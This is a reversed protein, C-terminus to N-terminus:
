LFIGDGPNSRLARPEKEKMSCQTLIGDLYWSHFFWASWFLQCRLFVLAELNHEGACMCIIIEAAFIALPNKWAKEWGCLRKFGPWSERCRNWVFSNQYLRTAKHWKKCDEMLWYHVGWDLGIETWFVVGQRRLMLCLPHNEWEPGNVAKWKGCGTWKGCPWQGRHLRHFSGTQPQRSLGSLLLLIPPSSTWTSHLFHLGPARVSPLSRPVNGARQVKKLVSQNTDMKSLVVDHVQLGPLLSFTKWARTHNYEDDRGRWGLGTDPLHQSRGPPFALCKKGADVHDWCKVAPCQWPSGGLRLPSQSSAARRNCIYDTIILDITLSLSFDM